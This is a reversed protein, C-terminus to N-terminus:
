CLTPFDSVCDMLAFSGKFRSMLNPPDGLVEVVRGKTIQNAVVPGAECVVKMGFPAGGLDTEPVWIEGVGADGTDVVGGREFPRLIGVYEPM